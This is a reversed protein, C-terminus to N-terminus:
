TFGTLPNQLVGQTQLRQAIDYLEEKAHDSMHAAAREDAAGDHLAGYVGAGAVVGGSVGALVPPVTLVMGRRLRALAKLYAIDGPTLAAAM